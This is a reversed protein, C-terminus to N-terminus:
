LNLTNIFFIMRKFYFQFYICFVSIYVYAFYVLISFETTFNSKGKVNNSSGECYVYAFYVLTLFVLCM